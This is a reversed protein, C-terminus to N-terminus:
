KEEQKVDIAFVDKIRAILEEDSEGQTIITMRLSIMDKHSMYGITQTNDECDILEIKNIDKYSDYDIADYMNIGVFGNVCENYNDCLFSYEMVGKKIKECTEYYHNITNLEANYIGPVYDIFLGLTKSSYDERGHHVVVFPINDVSQNMGIKQYRSMLWKIDYEENEDRRLNLRLIKTINEERSVIDGYTEAASIIEREEVVSNIKKVANIRNNVYESYSPTPTTVFQDTLYKELLERLIDDCSRDWLSHNASLYVEFSEESKEIVLIHSLVETDDIITRILNLSDFVDERDNACEYTICPIEWSVYEYEVMMGTKSCYCTRFMSQDEILKKLAYDLKEYSVGFVDLGIGLNGSGKQKESIYFKQISNPAYTSILKNNRINSGYNSLANAVNENTIVGKSRENPEFLSIHVQKFLIDNGIYREDIYKAIEAVSKNIYLDKLSIEIDHQKLMSSIRMVKISNGGIEFFSDFISIKDIGLIEEFIGCILEETKNRPAVYDKGTRAEIEPLARKDLKGNRTVPISEIQMMYSPIMYDPLNKSLNDRVDTMIIETDGTVYAYIAKDGGADERAIVACDTIGEIERIRSEIEALEIRFGRIKVQEDIRGLYEINGDSLWRALDGTHYMRGEGYPNPVFKEATLEPRNLYGRALGDGAICLEGIEGIGCLTNKNAVYVRTHCSPKGIVSRNMDATVDAYTTNVTAETPGYSNIVKKGSALIQKLIDLDAAEGGSDLLRLKTLKDANLERIVKPTLSAVTIECEEMYTHLAEIDYRMDEAVVYLPIGNLISGFIDAVSQDFCYNAFQMLKDNEKLGFSITYSKILGIVGTNEIMVGKPKGTTGSTYICYILDNAKNIREPNQSTSLFVEGDTLDIVEIDTNVQANYVLVAKPASDELMYAIRDEPYTPDIPVYAGGAKIIGFIGIIMELSRETVLAVFDNPKVGSQRLKYALSNAKANLQAYTLSEGEFVVAINDPIQAVQEEFLEVVTKERSYEVATNNFDELIQRREAESIMETQSLKLSPKNTLRELITIYHSLIQKASEEEFLDTCYELGIGFDGESEWIDFSLDFKAVTDKTEAWETKMGKLSIKENENNQLVLMVDFIPNRSMDRQVDVAEVLEEFPYEQNEYAKLCTEKIEGLFEEYTKNGEPKGRMALTNVFMGLMGETDKHTRGSIPTGIVVDEQRSYKGLLVMAASMLVMFETAENKAAMEKIKKGLESGTTNFVMAGRYSQEQPRSYDLPMDLIPIEDEFQSKWYEAQSSLDRTMMWESYDKFQHTLPDLEEGNYMANFERIFTGMSMGDGVIHHMDINLLHYEGRDVLRVRVLPANGLDFPQMFSAILEEEASKDDKIYEFDAEVYKLIKQVPEGDVMMFETRLIEHRNIMQQIAEKIAEPSVEGKLRLNQPMNYSVGEPDMQCILYTRKQASSMPYYEKDIAKPISVYKEVPEGIVLEALKEPTANSFVSKLTVRHGTEAEIRNVLRTARLSHGGLAFFSDTVSVKQVGLIETFIVCILEETENRPAVYDNETRVEIDPLAKKDLKGNRTVPISEIQMMYSPIMYDPLSKSLNDRIESMVIEEDSTMYAYIAKDGSVDVRAIVACDNVGEIERIRSEIEGLEIRFGRIKVQEDIRGLYEINGDPLWRALDGTRYMKSEGFPNSVFKEKTLEENNLYGRSLGDGSTCLEGPVGIGCLQEGSLIYVQTNSIPRGIPINNFEDPIEYTTTFTTNETPGYGNTLKVNNKRNKLIRVHDESLKEGGILLHELNDFVGNDMQIMQNFLTSTMWMTNIKNNTILAKLERCDTLKETDTIVLTGGNLLPGWVELTAADFSMSGTQLLITHEDLNIYNASKVLRIVSRHEIISGKPKGTTGSTYICYILDNAKNIIEPNQNASLYVESDALDIIEIDTNVQSKYVLVAKPASDGLIYAIRDEPYTPDIPVYAGGAKIIGFIGILMELSREAVIAVFDDPKVGLERLKYAVQNAKANLESYTLCEGEFVVAVNNPTKAVQEEFLEVVTKERPYDVCTDNFDKLILEKEKENYVEVKELSKTADEAIQEVIHRLHSAIIEINNDTFKSPNYSLKFVLCGDQNYAAFSLDYNTQERVDISELQLGVYGQETGDEGSTGPYNEFVFLHKIYESVNERGVKMGGLAAHDYSVSENNSAQLSLLMSMITEEKSNARIRLPVTNIFMGVSTEIGRLPVNRGSVVNGILVDDTGCHKQLLIGVALQAVTSVTADCNKALTNLKSTTNKDIVVFDDAVQKNTATEVKEIPTIEAVSEYDELYSDWFEKLESKKIKQIWEVYEKFPLVKNKEESATQEAKKGEGSMILNYFRIWDGYVLPNCWGDLIIHHSSVILVDCDAFSLMAVRMLSDEKLDFGRELDKAAYNKVAEETYKEEYCDCILEIQRNDVIYQKIIGKAKTQVFSTKLTEYKKALCDLSQRLCAADIRVNTKFSAQVLYSTDEDDLQNHFYMGEQLPTLLYMDSETVHTGKQEMCWGVVAEVSEKYLNIFEEAYAKTCNNYTLNCTFKGGTVMANINFYGSTRNDSSSSEGTSLGDLNKSSEESDMEGLYNFYVDVYESINTDYLLGYGIGKNPVERLMDKTTVISEEIDNKCDVVVPYLSTFWGVTRDTNVPKHITERGHGEIGVAISEQGTHKRLAVGLAALLLD